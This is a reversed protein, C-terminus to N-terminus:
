DDSDVSDNSAPEDSDTDDQPSIDTASRAPQRASCYRVGNIVVIETTCPQAQSSIRGNSLLQRLIPTDTTLTDAVSRHPEVTPPIPSSSRSTDTRTEVTQPSETEAIPASHAATAAQPTAGCNEIHHDNAYSHNIAIQDIAEASSARELQTLTEDAQRCYNQFAQPGENQLRASQLSYLNLNRTENRDWDRNQGYDESSSERSVSSTTGNLRDYYSSAIRIQEIYYSRYTTTLKERVQENRRQMDDKYYRCTTASVFIKNFFARTKLGHWEAETPCRSRNAETVGHFFFAGSFLLASLIWTM